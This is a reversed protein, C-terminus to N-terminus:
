SFSFFLSYFLINLICTESWLNMSMLMFLNSYILSFPCVIYYSFPFIVFFNNEFSPILILDLCALLYQAISMIVVKPNALINTWIKGYSAQCKGKWPIKGVLPDFRHRRRRKCQCASEKGSLLRPLGLHHPFVGFCISGGM